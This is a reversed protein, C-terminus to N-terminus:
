GHGSGSVAPLAVVACCGMAATAMEPGNVPISFTAMPPSVSCSPRFARPKPIPRNWRACWCGSGDSGRSGPRPGGGAMRAEAVKRGRHRQLGSWWCCSGPDASATARDGKQTGPQRRAPTWDPRSDERRWCNRGDFDTLDAGEASSRASAPREAWRRYTSPFDLLRLRRRNHHRVVAKTQLSQVSNPLEFEVLREEGLQRKRPWGTAWRSCGGPFAPRRERACCRSRSRPARRSSRELGVFPAGSASIQPRGPTVPSASGRYAPSRRCGSAAILRLWIRM